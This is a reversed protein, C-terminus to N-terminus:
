GVAVTLRGQLAKAMNVLVNPPVMEANRLTVSGSGRQWLTAVQRVIQPPTSAADISINVGAAALDDLIQVSFSM